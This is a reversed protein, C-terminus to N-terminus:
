ARIRARNVIKQLLAVKRSLGLRYIRIFNTLAGPSWSGILWNQGLNYAAQKIIVRVGRRKGLFLIRGIPRKQIELFFKTFGLAYLLGQNSHESNLIYSVRSQNGNPNSFGRGKPVLRYDNFSITKACSKFFTWQFNTDFCFRSRLQRQRLVKTLHLKKYSDPELCSRGLGVYRTCGAYDGTESLPRNKNSRSLKGKKTLKLSM